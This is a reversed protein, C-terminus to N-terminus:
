SRTWFDPDTEPSPQDGGNIDYDPPFESVMRAFTDFMPIGDYNRRVLRALPGPVADNITLAVIRAKTVRFGNTGIVADGYGEVMGSVYGTSHYDNSGEYYGYFGCKCGSFAGEKHPTAAQCTAENEGPTWVQRYHIGTLRGYIDIRFSRAGKVSGAAFEKGSFRPDPEATGTLQFMSAKLMRMYADAQRADWTSAPVVGGAAYGATSYYYASLKDLRRVQDQATPSAPPPNSPKQHDAPLGPRVNKGRREFFNRPGRFLDDPKM